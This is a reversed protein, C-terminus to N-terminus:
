ILTGMQQMWNVPLYTVGWAAAVMTLAGRGMIAVVMGQDTAVEMAQDMVAVMAVEMAAGVVMVAVAEEAMTTVSLTTMM